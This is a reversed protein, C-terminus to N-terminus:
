VRCNVFQFILTYMKQVEESEGPFFRKGMDIACQSVNNMKIINDLQNISLNKRSLYDIAVEHSHMKKLMSVIKNM